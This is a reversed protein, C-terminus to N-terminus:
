RKDCIVKYPAGISSGEGRFLIYKVRMNIRGKVPEGNTVFTAVGSYNMRHATLTDGNPRMTVLADEREPYAACTEGEPIDFREWNETLIGSKLVPQVYPKPRIASFLFYFTIVILAVVGLASLAFQPSAVKM